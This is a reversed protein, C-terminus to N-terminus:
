FEPLPPLEPSVYVGGDVGMFYNWRAEFLRKAFAYLWMDKPLLREIEKKTENSPAPYHIKATNKKLLEPVEALGMSIQLLKMSRDVDELLGFWVTQELREASLLCAATKNRRLYEKADSEINDSMVWSNAKFIGSLFDVGGEGDNLPQFWTKNPDHVYEELTQSIFSANAKRSWKLTKSYYFQSVSRSVPNRLFTIVDAIHSVDLREVDELAIPQTLFNEMVDMQIYSWDFHEFGIYEKSTHAIKGYHKMLRDISTGGAKGIHLFYIPNFTDKLKRLIAHKEAQINSPIKNEEMGNTTLARFIISADRIANSDACGGQVCLELEHDVLYMIQMKQQCQTSADAAQSSRGWFLRSDIFLTLRPFRSLLRVTSFSILWLILATFIVLTVAKREKKPLIIVM